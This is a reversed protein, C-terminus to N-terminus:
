TVKTTKIRSYSICHIFIPPPIFPRTTSAKASIKWSQSWSHQVAARIERRISATPLPLLDTPGGPGLAGQKALTDARENGLHGRHSAIWFMQIKMRASLLIERIDTFPSSIKTASISATLAARSDAFIEVSSTPTAQSSVYRLAQLIAIGEAQFISCHPPLKGRCSAVTGQSNVIVLGYGTCGGIVSGDTYVRWVDHGFPLLPISGKPPLLVLPLPTEQLWPPLHESFFRAPTDIPSSFDITPFKQRISHAARPSFSSRIALCRCAALEAIRLEIPLMGCLALCAETSTSKFVRLIILAMQRQASRLITISKARDTVPCWLSCGYLMMPEITTAYLRKLRSKSLGWSRALFRRAAFILKKAAVAKAQIHPVGTLRHDLLFGLFDIQKTPPIMRGNLLLAVPQQWNRKRSFLMFSTKAPNISLEVNDFNVKDMAVLSFPIIKKM